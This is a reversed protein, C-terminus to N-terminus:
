SSARDGPGYLCWEAEWEIRGANVTTGTGSAVGSFGICVMPTTDSQNPLSYLSSLQNPVPGASYTLEMPQYVSGMGSNTHDLLSAIATPDPVTGDALPSICIAIDGSASTPLTPIWRLKMRKLWYGAFLNAITGAVTGTTYGGASALPQTSTVTWAATPNVYTRAFQDAAQVGTTTTVVFLNSVGRAVYGFGPESGVNPAPCSRVGLARISSGYQIPAPMFGIKRGSNSNQARKRGKTGKKQPAKQKAAISQAMARMQDQQAKTFKPMTPNNTKSITHSGDGCPSRSYMQLLTSTIPSRKSWVILRSGERLLERM